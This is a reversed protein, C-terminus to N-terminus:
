WHQFLRCLRQKGDDPHFIQNLQVLDNFSFVQAILELTKKDIKTSIFKFNLNLTM